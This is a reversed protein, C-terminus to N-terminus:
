ITQPNTGAAVIAVTEAAVVVAVVIAVTEV